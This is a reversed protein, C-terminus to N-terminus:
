VWLQPVLSSGSKTGFSGRDDAVVGLRGLPRRGDAGVFEPWYHGAGKSWRWSPRGSPMADFRWQIVTAAGLFGPDISCQAHAIALLEGSTGGRAVGGVVDRQESVDFSVIRCSVDEHDSVVKGAVVTSLSTSPHSLMRPEMVDENRFSGTPQVQLLAPPAEESTIGQCSLAKGGIILNLLSRVDGSSLEVPAGLGPDPTSRGLIM